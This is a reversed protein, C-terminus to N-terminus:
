ESTTDNHSTNPGVTAEQLPRIGVLMATTNGFFPTYSCLTFGSARLFDPLHGALCSTICARDELPHFSPYWQFRRPGFDTIIIRGGPRLIRYMERLAAAKETDTLHHLTHTCFAVDCSTNPLSLSQAVGQELVVNSHSLTPRARAQSLLIPDPDIGYAQIHPYLTCAESLFTGEGCGIDAIHEDGHLVAAKVIRRKFSKGLGSVACVTRYSPTWFRYKLGSIYHPTHM